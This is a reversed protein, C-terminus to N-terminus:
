TVCAHLFSFPFSFSFHHLFYFPPYILLIFYTSNTIGWKMMWQSSTQYYTETADSSSCLKMPSKKFANVHKHQLVLTDRLYLKFSEGMWRLCSTMFDPTMGAEDLLVLAGVGGSHSSFRKIEDTSLDPHVVKAVGTLYRTIGFKNVFVAM